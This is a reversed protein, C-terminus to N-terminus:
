IRRKPPLANPELHWSSEPIGYRGIGPVRFAPIRHSFGLMEAKSVAHTLDFGDFQQRHFFTLCGKVEKLRAITIEDRKRFDSLLQVVQCQYNEYDSHKKWKSNWNKYMAWIEGKLPYIRYFSEDNSKQCNVLYSFQSMELNVSTGSVKFIGCVIPLNEKKWDIEHELNPQSELFTVCVQSESIVNDIRTYQRPLIDKGSYVAWVQGTAFDNSSWSPELVKDEPYSKLSPLGGLPVNSSFDGANGNKTAKQSDIEQVMIDPLALQDLEFMGDVVEDIEGGKFRYALVNHSFIYLNDPPIHFTVPSGGIKQREFISKFGDVKVLCAGDGGLYKSFDSIIEVLEFKCRKVSGPNHAWEHLNWDKYLAWIEGRRPYIEFQEDTVGRVWSCKYSFVMSWSEEDNMEPNLDFSGCAVPLGADCWRREGVSIPTPKLWRVLVARASNCAVRAYRFNHPLNARYQAGWIQGVKLLEPKRDNEFNYYDQCPRKQALAKSSCPLNEELNIPQSIKSLNISDISMDRDARINEKFNLDRSVDSFPQQCIIRDHQQDVDLFNQLNFKLAGIDESFKTTTRCIGGLSQSSFDWKCVSSSQATIIAKNSAINQSPSAKINFSKYDERCASRKLDYASRKARDSLMSFADEVLKLALKTGPFKIKIPQLMALLRQYRSKVDDFTSPPTLQLVWYYDIGYGPFKINAASIIDCVTLMSGIYDIAPFLQQARLLNDRAGTYDNCIIKQEADRQELLAKVKNQNM